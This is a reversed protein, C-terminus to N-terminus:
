DQRFKSLLYYWKRHTKLINNSVYWLWHKVKAKVKLVVSRLQDTNENLDSLSRLITFMPDSADM